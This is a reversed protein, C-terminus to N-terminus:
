MLCLSEKPYSLSSTTSIFVLNTHQYKNKESRAKVELMNLKILKFKIALKFVILQKILSILLVLPISIKFKENKVSFNRSIKKGGKEDIFEFFTSHDEMIEALLREIKEFFKHDLRRERRCLQSGTLSIM